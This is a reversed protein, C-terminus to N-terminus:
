RQILCRVFLFPVHLRRNILQMVTELLWPVSCIVFTEVDELWQRHLHPNNLQAVYGVKLYEILVGVSSANPDLDEQVYVNVDLREAPAYVDIQVTAEFDKRHLHHRHPAAPGVREAMSGKALSFIAIWIEANPM